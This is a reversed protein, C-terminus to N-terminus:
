CMNLIDFRLSFSLIVIIINLNKYEILCNHWKLYFINKLNKWYSKLQIDLKRIYIYGMSVLYKNAKSYYM